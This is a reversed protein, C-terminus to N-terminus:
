RKTEVGACGCCLWKGSNGNFVTGPVAKCVRCMTRGALRRLYMQVAWSRVRPPAFRFQYAAMQEAVEANEAGFEEFLEIQAMRRESGEHGSVRCWLGM